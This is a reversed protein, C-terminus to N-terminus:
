LVAEAVIMAQSLRLGQSGNRRFLWEGCDRLEATFGARYLAEVKRARAPSLEVRGDVRSAGFARLLMIGRTDTPIGTIRSRTRLLTM